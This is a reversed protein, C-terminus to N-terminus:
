DHLPKPPTKKSLKAASRTTMDTATPRYRQAKQPHLITPAATDVLLDATREVLNDRALASLRKRENWPGFLELARAAARDYKVKRAMYAARLREITAEYARVAKVHGKGWQQPSAHALLALTCPKDMPLPYLGDQLAAQVLSFYIGRELANLTRVPTLFRVPGFEIEIIKAM